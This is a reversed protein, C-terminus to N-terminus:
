AKAKEAEKAREISAEGIQTGKRVKRQYMEQSLKSEAKLLKSGAAKSKHGKNKMAKRREM